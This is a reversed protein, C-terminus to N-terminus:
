NILSFLVQLIDTLQGEFALIGFRVEAGIFLMKGKLRAAFSFM